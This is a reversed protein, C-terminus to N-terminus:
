SSDGPYLKETEHLQKAGTVSTKVHMHTTDRGLHYAGGERMDGLVARQRGSDNLFIHQPPFHGFFWRTGASSLM